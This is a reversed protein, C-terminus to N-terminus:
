LLRCNQVLEVFVPSIRADVISEWLVKYNLIALWSHFGLLINRM